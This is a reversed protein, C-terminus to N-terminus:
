YGPNQILKANRNMEDRSIPRFYMKDVWIRNELSNVETPTYTYDYISEDKHYVDKLEKGPKFKGVVNIYVTKRGLTEPAIMWRRADHYRQEEYAMEIRRENRYRQRLADGTETIAPMGARFRIKNLWTKAEDDLGLEICAEAYNFVAETYRFFPWPIYQRTTNDVINPDPDIFKRMYYGTWSGNWNEISSQRTDLGPIVKLEYNGTQANKVKLDYQGVQIQNVPDVNGSIKDRPKWGAGDYLISAYFRPDRNDYPNAKEAPNNWDFKTGDMMEYDDVLEQIPSNGAWNHYGNPGNALGVYIGAYEDKQPDFDRQFLLEVAATADVGPAKSGGGMSISIYNQIAEDRSAPAALDLKYGGGGQDLVAKAADKAAQWRATRDGSVYGLFEPNPYAAILPSKAKATPIDHLDSAAYLLVRSKLALAAVKTARGKGLGPKGDLLLAASDCESIIFNVCEEYTNRPVSYDEGLGYTKTIIPVAGYYRLLQQYYYGRLFHTEGRLRDNLEQNDFTATALNELASNAARIKKYMVNWDYTNSVWGTNEPSLLGENITNIGRGAHTFVAEDSLSALMQEDFGGMGLGQTNQDNYVGNVFATALAGDTWVLNSPVQDLPQTDLFDRKCSTIGGALLLVIFLSGTIKKM